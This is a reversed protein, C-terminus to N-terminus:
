STQAARGVNVAAAGQPDEEAGDVDTWGAAHLVLELGPLSPAPGTVAAAERGTREPRAPRIAM